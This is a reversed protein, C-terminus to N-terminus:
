PMQKIFRDSAEISKNMEKILSEIDGQINLREGKLSAIAKANLNHKLFLVHDKLKRLVPDMKGEAAKLTKFMESYKSKTQVLSDRSKAKFSETEIQDIEKEWEDFLDRSVTEVKQVSKRVADAKYTAKDYSSKLEDYKAELEGGKFGYISKLRQLADQFEEGAEKQADRADDVRTKLLDRKQVGILEYASYEVKRAAKTIPNQCATLVFAASLFLASAKLHNFQKNLQFISFFHVKLNEM